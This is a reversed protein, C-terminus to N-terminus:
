MLRFWLCNMALVMAGAASASDLCQVGTMMLKLIANAELVVAGGASKM